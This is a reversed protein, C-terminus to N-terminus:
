LEEIVEWFKAPDKVKSLTELLGGLVAKEKKSLMPSRGTGGVYYFSLVHIFPSEGSDKPKQHVSTQDGTGKGKGKVIQGIDVLVGRVNGDFESGLNHSDIVTEAGYIVSVVDDLLGLEFITNSDKEGVLLDCCNLHLVIEEMLWENVPNGVDTVMVSGLAERGEESM